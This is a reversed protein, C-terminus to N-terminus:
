NKIATIKWLYIIKKLIKIHTLLALHRAKNVIYLKSNKIKLSLSIFNEISFFGDNDSGLILVPRTIDKLKDTLNVQLLINLQHRLTEKPLCGDKVEKICINKYSDFTEHCNDIYEISQLISFNSYTNVLIAGKLNNLKYSALLEISVLGGFCHGLIIFDKPAEKLKDYTKNCIEPFSTGITEIVKINDFFPNLEKIVNRYFGTGVGAGAIIYLDM